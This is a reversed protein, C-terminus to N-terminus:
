ILENSIGFITKELITDALHQYFLKEFEVYETNTKVKYDLVNKM